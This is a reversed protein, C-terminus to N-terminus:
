SRSRPRWRARAPTRTRSSSTPTSSTRRCRTRRAARSRPAPRTRGRPSTGRARSRRSSGARAARQVQRREPEGHDASATPAVEDEDRVRPHLVRDAVLEHVALRLQRADPREERVPEREAREDVRHEGAQGEPRDDTSPTQQQCKRRRWSTSTKRRAAFSASITRHRDRQELEHDAVAEAFRDRAGLCSSRRRRPATSCWGATRSRARGSRRSRWCSWVGLKEIAMGPRSEYRAVPENSPM